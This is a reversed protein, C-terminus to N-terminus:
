KECIEVAKGVSCFQDGKPPIPFIFQSIFANYKHRYLVVNILAIDEEDLLAISHNLIKDTLYLLPKSYHLFLCNHFRLGSNVSRRKAEMNKVKLEIEIKETWRCLTKIEDCNMNKLDWKNKIPYYQKYMKSHLM